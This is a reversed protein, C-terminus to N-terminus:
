LINFSAFKILFYKVRYVVFCFYYCHLKLIRGYFCFGYFRWVQVITFGEYFVYVVITGVGYAWHEKLDLIGYCHTVVLNRRYCEGGHAVLSLDLDIWLHLKKSSFSHIQIPLFFSNEHEESRLKIFKHSPNRPVPKLFITSSSSRSNM